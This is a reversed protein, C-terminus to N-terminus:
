EDSGRAQQDSANNIAGEAVQDRSSKRKKIVSKNPEPPMSLLRRAIRAIQAEAEASIIMLDQSKGGILV